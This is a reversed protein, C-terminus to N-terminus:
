LPFVEFHVRGPSHVSATAAPPVTWRISLAIFDGPGLTGTDLGTELDTPAVYTAGPIPTLDNAPASVVENIDGVLAIALEQGGPPQEDVYVTISADSVDDINELYVLRYDVQGDDAQGRSVNDFLYRDAEVSSKAGGISLLSDANAAGGSLYSRVDVPPPGKFVLLIGIPRNEFGSLQATTEVPDVTSVDTTTTAVALNPADGGSAGVEATEGFGNSYTTFTSVGGSVNRSVGFIAVALGEPQQLDDTTGSSISGAGNISPKNSITRDIIDLIDGPGVGSFEALWGATRDSVALTRTISTPEGAEALRCYAYLGVFDNEKEPMLWGDDALNLSSSTCFAAVLLNGETPPDPLTLTINGANATGTIEQVKTFAM